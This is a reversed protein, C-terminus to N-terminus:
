SRRSFFTKVVASHYADRFSDAMVAQLLHRANRAVRELKDDRRALVQDSLVAHGCGRRDRKSALHPRKVFFSVLEAVDIPVFHVWPRLLGGALLVPVGASGGDAGPHVTGDSTVFVTAAGSAAAVASAFCAEGTTRFDATFLAAHVSTLTPARSRPDVRRRKRDALARDAANGFEPTVVACQQEIRGAVVRDVKTSSGASGGPDLFKRRRPAGAGQELENAPTGILTTLNSVDSCLLAVQRRTEEWLARPATGTPGLSLAGTDPDWAGRRLTTVADETCGQAAAQGLPERFRTLKEASPLEPAGAAAADLERGFLPVGLRRLDGENERIFLTHLAFHPRARWFALDEDSMAHNHAIGGGRLRLPVFFAGPTQLISPTLTANTGFREMARRVTPLTAEAARHWWAGYSVGDVPIEFRGRQNKPVASRNFSASCEGGARCGALFCVGGHTSAAAACAEADWAAMTSDSSNTSATAERLVQLSDAMLDVFVDSPSRADVADRGDTKLCDALGYQNWVCHPGSVNFTHLSVRHPDRELILPMRGTDLWQSLVEPTMLAEVQELTLGPV